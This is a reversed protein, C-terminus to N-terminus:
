PHALLGQSVALDCYRLAREVLAERTLIPRLEGWLAIRGAAHRLPEHATPGALANCGYSFASRRFAPQRPPGSADIEEAAEADIRSAVEAIVGKQIAIDIGSRGDPLNANKIILDFM